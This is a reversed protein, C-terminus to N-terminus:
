KKNNKSKGFTIKEKIGTEKEIKTEHMKREKKTMNQLDAFTINNKKQSILDMMENINLIKYEDNDKANIFDSIKVYIEQINFDGKINKFIEVGNSMCFKICFSDKYKLLNFEIVHTINIVGIHTIENPIDRNSEESYSIFKDM